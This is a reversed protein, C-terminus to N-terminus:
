SRFANTSIKALMQEIENEAIFHISPHKITRALYEQEYQRKTPILYAEKDLELLEMITTYGGRSLITVSQNMLKELEKSTPNVVFDEKKTKSPTVIKFNLQDSKSRLVTEFREQIRSREPEPGSVIALVDIQGSLEPMREFRCLHGIYHVPISLRANLLDGCIPDEKSDPIWCHDFLAIYNGILNRVRKRFIPIQPNLQHTMFVNVASNSFFGYRNDSLVVDVEHEQVLKEALNHEHKAMRKMGRFQMLMQLYTSHSANLRVEYGPILETIVEPLDKRILNIQTHVGAFIVKCNQRIFQRMLPICRTAHGLGWDLPAILVTQDSIDKPLM